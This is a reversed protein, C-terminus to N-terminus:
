KAVTTTASRGPARVPATRTAQPTVQLIVRDGILSGMAEVLDEMPLGQDQVALGMTAAALVEEQHIAAMDATGAVGTAVPLSIVM